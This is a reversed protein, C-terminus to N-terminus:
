SANSSLVRSSVGNRQACVRSFSARAWKVRKALLSGLWPAEVGYTSGEFFIAVSFSSKVNLSRRAEAFFYRCAHVLAPCQFSSTTM